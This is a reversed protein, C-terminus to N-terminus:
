WYREWDKRMRMLAEMYFYDGWLNCEDVGSERVGNEKSRKAYTGHALIGEGPQGNQILCRDTLAKMLKSALSTVVKAEDEGVYGAMELLGCAAIAAASSDRPESSGDTFDFDWYPILDSPLHNLFCATIGEFLRIYEPDRLFGYSLASGYIGWSQGRAWISGNRNGQQTVGRLANGTAPDFYYTHYTSFDERVVHAMATKIHREARERYEPRGTVSSAWFLLPMNLLCDIILRYEAPDGVAGWAQFFDGKEQFRGMLNDAAMLAAREAQRMAELDSESSEGAEAERKLLRWAAVCSPSFLFGMDHHDVVVREKMRREFDAVQNLAAKKYVDDGATEYALWVEGTWFGETWDDNSTTPYIGNVSAAAPFRGEFYGLNRKVTEMCIGMACEREKETMEPADALRKAAEYLKEKM